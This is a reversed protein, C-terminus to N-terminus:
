DSDGKLYRLCEMSYVAREEGKFFILQGTTSEGAAMVDVGERFRIQLMVNDSNTEFNGKTFFRDYTPTAKKVIDEQYRVLLTGYRASSVILIAPTNTGSHPDVHNFIKAQFGDSSNCDFGSSFAPVAVLFSVAFVLRVLNNKMFSEGM